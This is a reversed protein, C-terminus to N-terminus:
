STWFDPVPEVDGDVHTGFILIELGNPRAEFQRTTGPGVRMSDPEILEVLEDDLKVRGSGALM